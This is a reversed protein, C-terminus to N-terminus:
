LNLASAELCRFSPRNTLMESIAWSFQTKALGEQVKARDQIWVNAAALAARNNAAIAVVIAVVVAVVTAAVVKTAAQAEATAVKRTTEIVRIDVAAKTDVATAVVAVM